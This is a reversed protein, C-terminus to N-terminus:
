CSLSQATKYLHTKAAIGQVELCINRKEVDNLETKTYHKKKRQKRKRSKCKIGNEIKIDINDGIYISYM